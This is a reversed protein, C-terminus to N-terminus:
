LVGCEELSAACAETELVPDICAQIQAYEDPCQETLCAGMNGDLMVAASACTVLCERAALLDSACSAAGCEQAAGLACTFCQFDAEPCSLLCDLSPDDGCAAMCAETGACAAEGSDQPESWPEVKSYYALCMEDLSSEGWAVDRPAQPAGNVIPQNGASNDYTCSLTLADGTGVTVEEGERLTYTQQWNFDWDPVDLLCDEEGDAPQVTVRQQTGLMHMHAMITRITIPDGYNPFSRSFTVESDGAPIDLDVVALPRTVSLWPTPEEDLELQLETRDSVPEGALTNYHIQMVIVAGADVRISMDEPLMAPVAGPVWGAIQNPFGGAVVSFGSTADRSAGPTPSGFCTYGAGEEAEDAALLAETQSADMAYVLVHHVLESGPIVQTGHLYRTADSSLDSLVFCRWDDPETADPVYGPAVASDTPAFASPAAQFPLDNAPDGQPAGAEVWARFTAIDADSMLREDQYRRCDPDAQWPPMVGAEMAALATSAYPQMDAYTDLAFHGSGGENHCTACNTQVIQRVSGSWTPTTATQSTSCALSLLILLM